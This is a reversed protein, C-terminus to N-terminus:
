VKEKEAAATMLADLWDDNGSCLPCGKQKGDEHHGDLHSNEHESNTLCRRCLQIDMNGDISSHTRKGCVRCKCIQNHWSFNNNKM